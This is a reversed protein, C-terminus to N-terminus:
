IIEKKTTIATKEITKINSTIYLTKLSCLFYNIFDLIRSKPTYNKIMELIETELEESFGKNYLNLFEIKFHAPRGGYEYFEIIKCDINIRKLANQISSMTGKSAHMILSNTLLNRKEDSNAALNWGEYGTIHNEKALYPLLKEQVNEFPFILFNKLDVSFVQKICEELALNNKDKYNEPLLSNNM